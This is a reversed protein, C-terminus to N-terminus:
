EALATGCSPCVKWDVHVGRGCDPCNRSVVPAQSPLPAQSNAQQSPSRLWGAVLAVILLPVGIVVLGIVVMFLFGFGMMM